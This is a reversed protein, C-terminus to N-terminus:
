APRDDTAPMTLPQPELSVSQRGVLTTYQLPHFRNLRRAGTAAPWGMTASLFGLSYALRWRAAILRTSGSPVLAAWSLLAAVVLRRPLARAVFRRDGLLCRTVVTSAGQWYLRRLLWGPHLRSAQISHRVVISGDYRVPEGEDQLTWALQVDEDSLLTKGLRGTAENFGGVALMADRRVVMNAGYPELTTPVAPSRFEGEGAFEIISLVGLLRRPWWGPLPQEWAPLIRGALVAPPPTSRAIADAIRAIWDPAAVADDDIYAIYAGRAAHAGANRALSLGPRDVRILRANPMAQTLAAARAAAEPSGFSDVVVIEFNDTSATQRALGDLCARLYDPRDHTCICVTIEPV